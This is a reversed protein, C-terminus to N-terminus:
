MGSSRRVPCVSISMRNYVMLIVRDSVCPSLGMVAAFGATVPRNSGYLVRHWVIHQRSGRVARDDTGSFGYGM